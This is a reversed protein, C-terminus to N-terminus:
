SATYPSDPAFSSPPPPEAGGEMWERLDVRGARAAADGYLRAAKWYANRHEEGCFEQVRDGRRRGKFHSGCWRCRAM